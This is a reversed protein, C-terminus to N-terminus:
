RHEVLHFHQGNILAEVEAVQAARHHCEELCEKAIQGDTETGAVERERLRGRLHIHLPTTTPQLHHAASHDVRSHQFAQAQIRLAVATKRRAQPHLAEAHHAM